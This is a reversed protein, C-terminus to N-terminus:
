MDLRPIKGYKALVAKFILDQIKPPYGRQIMGCSQSLGHWVGGAILVLLTDEHIPIFDLYVFSFECL